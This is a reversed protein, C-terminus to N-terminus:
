NLGSSDNGCITPCRQGNELAQGDSVKLSEVHVRAGNGGLDVMHNIIDNGASDVPVLIQRVKGDASRGYYIRIGVAPGLSDKQNLLELFVDSPFMEAHGFDLSDKFGPVKKQMEDLANRFNATMDDAEQISIVHHKITDPNISSGVNQERGGQNCSTLGASLTMLLIAPLIWQPTPIKSM